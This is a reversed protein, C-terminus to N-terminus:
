PSRRLPSSRLCEPSSRDDGSVLGSEGSGLLAGVGAFGLVLGGVKMPSLRENELAFHALLATFLPILATTLGIFGASAYQLAITSLIYPVALNSVGM